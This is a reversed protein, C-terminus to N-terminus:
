AVVECDVLPQSDFNSLFPIWTQLAMNAFLWCLRLLALSSTKSSEEGCWRAFVKCLDKSVEKIKKTFVQTWWRPCITSAQLCKLWFICDSLELLWLLWLQLGFSEHGIVDIVQGWSAQQMREKESSVVSLVLNDFRWSLMPRSACRCRDSSGLYGILCHASWAMAMQATRFTELERDTGAGLCGLPEPGLQEAALNAFRINEAIAEIWEALSIESDNPVSFSFSRFANGTFSSPNQWGQPEAPSIIFGNPNRSRTDKQISAKHLLFNICGKAPGNSLTAEEDYWLFHGDKVVCIRLQQDWQMM